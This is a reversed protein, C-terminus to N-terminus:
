VKVLLSTHEVAVAAVEAQAVQDEPAVLEVPVALEVM